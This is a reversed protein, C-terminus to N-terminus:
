LPSRDFLDLERLRYCLRGLEADTYTIADDYLAVLGDHQRPSLRVGTKLAWYSVYDARTFGAGEGAVYHLPAQYPGHPDVPQLYPFLPDQSLRRTESVGGLRYPTLGSLMSPVSRWTSPAQSGCATYVTATRAFEELRPTTRVPYGYVSLHDARLTDITVWIIPPADP